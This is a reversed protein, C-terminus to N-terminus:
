EDDDDDEDDEEDKDSNVEEIKIEGIQGPIQTVEAKEDSKSFIVTYGKEVSITKNTDFNTVGKEEQVIKDASTNENGTAAEFLYEEADPNDSAKAAVKGKLVKVEVNNDKGVEVSFETGRVGAVASVTKVNFEDDDGLKTIKMLVSGGLVDLLTQSGDDDFNFEGLLVKTDAGLKLITGDDLKIECRSEELTRILNGEVLTHNSRVREWTETEVDVLTEVSGDIFTIKAYRNKSLSNPIKIVMGPEVIASSMDNYMLLQKWQGTCDLLQTECIEMFTDGDKVVYETYDGGAVVLSFAGVVFAIILLITLRKKM